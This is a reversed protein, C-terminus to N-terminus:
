RDRARHLTREGDNFYKAAFEHCRNVDHYYADDYHDDIVCWHQLSM